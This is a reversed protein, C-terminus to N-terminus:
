KLFELAYAAAVASGNKLVAEDIDFEPSHNPSGTGLEENKIGIFSMVGNWKRLYNAFSESAMWPESAIVNEEGIERSAVTRAIQAYKSCNIVPPNTLGLKYDISCGYASAIGEIMKKFEEAVVDELESNFYRIMGSFELTKPIINSQTGAKLFGVSYTLAEFPSVRALRLSQFRQYIATFCDIPSNAEDPRSGHGGEGTITVYFSMNGAMMAGDNIVTKGSPLSSLLHIAFATDPNIGHEDMYRFLALCDDTNEEGREFCLYVTGNIENRKETLIKAAGLLMATHGDHGCAHMVGSKKSVCTKKQRLNEETEDVLLADVDARLLVTKEGESGGSIKALIGGPKIDVYEIGMSDLEEAIKGITNDEEGSLEPNEHFYRRLSIIYNEYKKARDLMTM